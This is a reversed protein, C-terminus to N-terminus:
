IMYGQNHSIYKDIYTQFGKIYGLLNDLKSQLIDGLASMGM